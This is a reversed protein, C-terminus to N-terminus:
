GGAEEVRSGDTLREAGSVVVTEGGRLGSLVEVWEGERAGLTVFRLRAVRDRDVVFVGTLQGREVVAGAPIRLATREGAPFRARGFAGSRVGPTPPLDLKVTVSRSAPDAAPIIEAVRGDLSRAPADLVVRVREGLRVRGMASESVTAELRYHRPDELFLLPQGPVALNGPEARREVVIGAMPAAIRTDGLAVEAARLEARAQAIRERLQQERAKVSQIRAGAQEEAAEASKRKSEVGDYEHASILERDLLLRYREATHQAYQRDAEAARLGAEAEELTRAMEDLSRLAEDRAARARDVRAVLERDDVAILLRGADVADGARVRVESVYGLVKSAIAVRTKSRVTGVADVTESVREPAAVAVRVGRAVPPAQRAQSESGDQAHCGALLAVLLL